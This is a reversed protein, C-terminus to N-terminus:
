QSIPCDIQGAGNGSVTGVSLFPGASIMAVAPAPICRIGFGANNTIEGSGSLFRLVSTDHLLVGERGNGRVIANRLSVSSGLSASIGSLVNNEITVGQVSLRSGGTVDIGITNNAIRSDGRIFATAGFHLALGGTNRITTSHLRVNSGMWALVGASAPNDAILSGEFEVVGDDVFVTHAVSSAGGGFLQANRVIVRAGSGIRLATPGGGRLTLSELTVHRARVWLVAARDPTLWQVAADPSGGRLLTNDRLVQVAENCVGVITIVVFGPRRGATLLADRLTGGAACDATLALVEIGLVQAKLSAVEEELAALRDAVGQAYTMTPSWLLAGIMLTRLMRSMAM